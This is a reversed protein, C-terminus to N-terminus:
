VPQGRDETRYAAAAALGIFIWLSHHTYLVNAPGLAGVPFSVMTGFLGLRLWDNTTVYRAGVDYLIRAYAVLFLGTGIVGFEGLLNTLWNHPALKAQIPGGLAANAASFSNVGVGLGHSHILLQVGEVALKWRVSLSSAGSFPNPVFLLTIVVLVAAGLIAATVGWRDRRSPTHERLRGRSLALAVMGGCALAVMALASRTGNNVLIAVALVFGGGAILRTIPRRNSAAALAFLPGAALGLFFGFGNRNYFWASAMPHKPEHWTTFPETLLRSTHLHSETTLEWLAVAEGVAVLGFITLVYIALTRRNSGTVYVAAAVFLASGLAFLGYLVGDSNVAWLSSAAIYVGFAGFLWVAAPLSPITGEKGAITHRNMWLFVGLGVAYVPLYLRFWFAHYSGISPGTLFRGLIATIM